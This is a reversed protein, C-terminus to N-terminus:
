NAKGKELEELSQQVLRDTDAPQVQRHLIKAAVATALDAAHAHLDAVAEQKAAQIESAARERQRQMDSETQAQLKQRLAEADARAEDILKRSEAHAQNLKQEFDAKLKQAELRAQEAGSLDNDIKQERARLGALLHPWVFKALLALVVLFVVLNWIAAGLDLSLLPPTDDAAHEGDAHAGDVAAAADDHDAANQPAAALPGVPALALLLTCIAIWHRM